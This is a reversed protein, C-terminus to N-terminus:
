FWERDHTLLVVQRGAFGQRLLAGVRSRHERDFSIVVDDLIIPRDESAAKNAMALFICLGLANRQGESLTLRPSDQEKGYFRLAIEVAKDNDEPVLIPCNGIARM